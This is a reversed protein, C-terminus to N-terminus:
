NERNSKDSITADVKYGRIEPRGSVSTFELSCAVGHRGVHPRKTLEEDAVSSVSLLRSSVDPNLLAVDATVSDGGRLNIEVLAKVFRKIESTGFRLYRTKALGSIAHSTVSGASGFEDVDLEELLYLAGNETVAHLRQRGNYDATHLGQVDFAGPYTDVSEWGGGSLFSYVFITNNNTSDDLPVALYYRNDHYAAVARDAYEWNVRSFLDQIDDSVPVADALLNLESTVRLRAVGGDTLFMIQGNCDKLTDRAACGFAAPIRDLSEITLDTINLSLRWLSKRFAILLRVDAIGIAGVLWDNGGPKIRIQDNLTDISNADSYGTGLLQDKSFPVWLRRNFEVAWAAPPLKIMTGGTANPGTSAVVFGNAVNMDWSLPPLCQKATYTGTAPTTPSGSVSYTFTTAGTVTVQVIGRYENQNGGEIYAWEGTTLGHESSTTCTAVGAAATISAVAVAPGPAGRFMYVNGEFQELSVPCCITEGVPYSIEVSAAGAQCYFATHTTVVVFGDQSDVTTVPISGRVIDDYTDFLRPGKNCTITGTAPTAPTGTVAYTFTTSGTVTISFDGNYEAQEAGDIAVYNGSTYGHATTTTVTATSGSRIISAVPVDVGLTFDLIVPPNDLSLDTSLAKSGKRPRITKDGLRLNRSDRLVGPPLDVGNGRTAFRLFMSDGSDAASGVPVNDVPQVRQSIVM